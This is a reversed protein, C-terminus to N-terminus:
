GLSTLVCVWWFVEAFINVAAKHAIALVPLLLGFAWARSFLYIFQKAIFIHVLPKLLCKEVSFTCIAWSCRFLHEVDGIMLSIFTLVRTHYGGVGM